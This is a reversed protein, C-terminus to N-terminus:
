RLLRKIIRYINTIVKVVQLQKYKKNSTRQTIYIYTFALDM